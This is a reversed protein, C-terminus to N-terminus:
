EAKFSFQNKGVARIEKPDEPPPLISYVAPKNTSQESVRAKYSYIKPEEADQVLSNAVGVVANVGMGKLQRVGAWAKLQEKTLTQEQEIYRRLEQRNTEFSLEGVNADAEIGEAKEWCTGANSHKLRLTPVRNGNDDTIGTRKGRKGFHLEFLDTTGEVRRLTVIERPANVLESSGNGSYTIEEHSVAKGNDRRPKSTHHIWGWLVDTRLLVPQLLTRLFMSAQEQKMLDCGAFAFLPDAFVLDPQFRNILREAFEVFKQHTKATERVFTVRENLTAHESETLRMAATIDQYAEALDGENNEAQIVLIRLAEKPKIGFFDRGLAWCVLMQMLLSSKGIGSAGQIVWQDQKCLWRLGLLSMPDNTRVFKRLTKIDIIEVAEQSDEWEAWSQAGICEAVLTQYAGKERREVGPLRSYRSPNKNGKDDLYDSLYDYVAKQREKFQEPGNADVAIWAHLSDGGSDIVFRIPLGSERYIKYQEPKPRSDFEVLLNRFSSVNKDDGETTGDLFPNIRIWCGASGDLMNDGWEEFKATWEDITRFHGHGTITEKGAREATENNLCVAEGPYFAKKLFDLPRLRQCQPVEGAPEGSLKFPAKNGNVELKSSERRYHGLERRSTTWPELPLDAAGDYARYFENRDIPRHTGSSHPYLQLVAQVAEERGMGNARLQHLRRIADAHRNGEPAPVASLIKEIAVDNRKGVEDTSPLSKM